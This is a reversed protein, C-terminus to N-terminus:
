PLGLLKRAEDEGLLVSGLFLGGVDIRVMPAKPLASEDIKALLPKDIMFDQIRHMPAQDKGPKWAVVAFKYPGESFNLPPTGSWSFLVQKTVSGNAPITLAGADSDKKWGTDTLTQFQIWDLFYKRQPSDVRYIVAGLRVVTGVLNSQNLLSVSAM